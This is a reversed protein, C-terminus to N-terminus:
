ARSSMKFAQPLADRRTKLEGCIELSFFVRDKIKLGKQWGRRGM